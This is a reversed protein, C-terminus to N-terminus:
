LFFMVFFNRTELDGLTLALIKPANALIMDLPLLFQGKLSCFTFRHRGPVKACFFPTIPLMVSICISSNTITVHSCCLGPDYFDEQYM